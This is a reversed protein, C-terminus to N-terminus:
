ERENKFSRLESTDWGFKRQNTHLRFPSFLVFLLYVNIYVVHKKWSIVKALVDHWQLKVLFWHSTIIPGGVPKISQFKQAPIAEVSNWGKTLMGFDLKPELCWNYFCYRTRPMSHIIRHYRWNSSSGFMQINSPCQELKLHPGRLEAITWVQVINTSCDALFPGHIKSKELFTSRWQCGM